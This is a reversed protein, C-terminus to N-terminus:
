DKWWHTVSSTPSTSDAFWINQNNKDWAAEKAFVMVKEDEYYASKTKYQGDSVPLQEGVSVWM